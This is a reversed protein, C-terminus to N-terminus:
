PCLDPRLHQAENLYVTQCENQTATTYFQILVRVCRPPLGEVTLESACIMPVYTWEYRERAIMAPNAAHLDPTVTFFVTVIDEEDIRNRSLLEDLLNGVAEKYLTAEDDTLTTAGRVARLTKLQNQGELTM